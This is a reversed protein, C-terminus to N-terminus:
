PVGAKHLDDILPGKFGNARIPYFEQAYAITFDPKRELLEDVARALEEPRDLHMLGAILLANAWHQTQPRLLAKHASDVCNEYDGLQYYAEAKRALLPGFQPDHKCFRLAADIRQIAEEARGVGILAFGLSIFALPQAPNLEIAGELTAIALNVDGAQYRLAGLAAHAIANDVDLSVAQKAVALGSRLTEERNQGIGFVLSHHYCFALMATADSFKPDIALSRQLCEIAKPLRAIRDGSFFHGIGQHYATWADLSDSRATTARYSEAGALEPGVAGVVTTTIEDQIQFFDNFDRDYHEAWIQADSQGEVLQCAIRIRDGIKTVSGSLIYRVGLEQAASRMDHSKGRFSFSSSRSMIFLWRIRSLGAIIDEAVADAYFSETEGGWPKDSVTQPPDSIKDTIQENDLMDAVFRFGRRPFTKIVAQTKGDDSVARRAANVCSNLAADSVIRGDWVQEILEDKSVVRDRNEILYHLLSFAQPEVPIRDSGCCLEFAEPDLSFDSFRYIM